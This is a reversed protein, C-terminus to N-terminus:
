IVRMGVGNKRVLGTGSLFGIAAPSFRGAQRNTTNTGSSYSFGGISVSSEQGNSDVEVGNLQLYEVQAATAKKILEKSHDALNDIGIKVIQYGTMQDVAESARKSFRPFEAKEVPEGIYDKEYYELDIYPM